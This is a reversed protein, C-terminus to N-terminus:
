GYQVDQPTEGADIIAQKVLELMRDLAEEEVGRMVLSTGYRGDRFFPYSGLDMDPFEDQIRTLASAINSEGLYATVTRSRVPPGAELKGELSALMAQMVAPIGAMVYVNEICFGQPGGTVNDVLAAGEPILAMRLRSALVDPPAERQRIRAEIVPNTVLPVGFTKAISAATIDDHTPGIGGTTFVYDYKRRMENVADIIEAEIDPIVRAERVQIGWGGLTLAMHNLNSDATRGSLIENGIILVCATVTRPKTM